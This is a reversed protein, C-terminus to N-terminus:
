SETFPHIQSENHKFSPIHSQADSSSYTESETEQMLDCEEIFHCEEDSIVAADGLAFRTGMSEVRASARAYGCGSANVDFHM